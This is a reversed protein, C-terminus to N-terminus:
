KAPCSHSIMKVSKVDLPTSTAAPMDSKDKSNDQLASPNPPTQTTQEGAWRGTLRVQQGVYQNLDLKASKVTWVSGNADAISYEGPKQGNQLCGKIHKMSLDQTQYTGPGSANQGFTAIGMVSSLLVLGFFQAFYRM